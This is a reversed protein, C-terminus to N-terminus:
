MDPNTLYEVQTVLSADKEQLVNEGHWVFVTTTGDAV